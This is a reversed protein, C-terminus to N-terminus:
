VPWNIVRAPDVYMGDIKVDFHLHDGYSQGSNDPRGLAQGCHVHEHRHVYVGGEDGAKLHAYRLLLEQGTPLRHSIRVQFGFWPENDNEGAVVVEGDTAALAEDGWVDWSSALDVGNHFYTDRDVGFEDTIVVPLRTTPYALSVGQDRLSIARLRGALQYTNLATLPFYAVGSYHQRFFAGLDDGWGEPNVAIVRRFDLDGVGADDASGGVTFRSVDWCAEIVTLAWYVNAEPPLLVITREYPVRPLGRPPSPFPQPPDSPLPVVELAAKLAEPTSAEVPVYILGPYNTDFFASLDDGWAGPNVAIV